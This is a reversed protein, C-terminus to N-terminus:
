WIGGAMWMRCRRTLPPGLRGRLFEQCSVWSRRLLGGFFQDFEIRLAALLSTRDADIAGGQEVKDGTDEDQGIVIDRSM